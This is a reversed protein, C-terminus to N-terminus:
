GVSVKPIGTTVPTLVPPGNVKVNWSQTDSSSSDYAKVKLTHSGINSGDALISYIASSGNAVTVDDITWQYSISQAPPAKAVVTFDLTDGQEIIVDVSSPLFQTITVSDVDELGGGALDDLGGGSGGGCGVMGFLSLALVAFLQAQKKFTKLLNKM